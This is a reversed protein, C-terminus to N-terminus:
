CVKIQISTNRGFTLDIIPGTKYNSASNYASKLLEALLEVVTGFAQPSLHWPIYMKLTLRPHKNAICLLTVMRTKSVWSYILNTLYKATRYYRFDVAAWKTEDSIYTGMMYTTIIPYQNSLLSCNVKFDFFYIKWFKGARYQLSPWSGIFSQVSHYESSLGLPPRRSCSPSLWPSLHFFFTIRIWFSCFVGLGGGYM